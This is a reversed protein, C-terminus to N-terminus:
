ILALWSTNKLCSGCGTGILLDKKMDDLNINQRSKKYDALDQLSVCHCECIVIESPGPIETGAENAELLDRYNEIDEFLNKIM